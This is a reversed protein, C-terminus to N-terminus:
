EGAARARSALLEICARHVADVTVGELCDPTHGQCREPPLRIRNCPACPLDIRVLRHETSIPAYRAPASPGFVCVIPAGVAAALHMPGTDGTVYLACRELLAALMTLEVEGTVDIIRARADSNALRPDERIVALAEDVMARDGPTGTLLLTADEHELLLRKAVEGFRRAPWQKIARGGSAHMGIVRGRGRLMEAARARADQPLDLRFAPRLSGSESERESASAHARREQATAGRNTVHPDRLQGAGGAVAPRGRAPSGM